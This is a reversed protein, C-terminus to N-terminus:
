KGEIQPAAEVAYQFMQEDEKSWSRGRRGLVQAIVEKAKEIRYKEAGKDTWFTFSPIYRPPLDSGAVLSCYGIYSGCMLRTGIATKSHDGIMSGLFRRGTAIEESGLRMNITGYTTKLNSTTTGAGLNVWEGIYSDGVYGDHVKNSNAMFISSAVEGGIKCGPGISVGPHILALPSIVTYKGIFCPGRLVSNAGISVGAEVIVPGKSADLVVGPEIKVDSALHVDEERIMHFPGAPHGEAEDRLGIADSVILEENWNTLDWIYQPLRAQPGDQPLESIKLWAANRELCDKPTLGPMRVMASHVFGLEDLIVSPEPPYDFGQLFVGRGSSLLTPENDLPKNIEVPMPLNPVIERRCFDALQPRVWLSLKTPRLARIQHELLTSLGCRMSFVPRSLSLPAFSWWRHGEFIVVHM